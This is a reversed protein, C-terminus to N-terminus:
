KKVFNSRINKSLQELQSDFKGEKVMNQITVFNTVLESEDLCQVSYMGKDLEITFKGYHIEFYYCGDEELWYWKNVKISDDTFSHLQREINAILKMRRQTTVNGGAPKRNNSLKLKM